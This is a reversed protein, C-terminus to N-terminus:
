KPDAKEIQEHSKEIQEHSKEIKGRTGPIKLKHRKAVLKFGACSNQAEDRDIQVCMKRVQAKQNEIQSGIQNKLKSRAVRGWARIL